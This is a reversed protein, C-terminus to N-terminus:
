SEAARVKMLRIHGDPPRVSLRPEAFTLADARRLRESFCLASKAMCDIRSPNPGPPAHSQFNGRITFGRHSRRNFALWNAGLPANWEIPNWNATASAPADAGVHQVVPSAAYSWPPSPAFGTPVRRITTSWCGGVFQAM